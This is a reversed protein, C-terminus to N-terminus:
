FGGNALLAFVFILLFLASLSLGIIACIMGGQANKYSHQYYSPNSLYVRKVNGFLALAIIGCILGPVAYFLCGVISCIGLVLVGISNPIEGSGVNGVGRNTVGPDLLDDLESM